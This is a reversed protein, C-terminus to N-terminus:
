AHRDAPAAAFLGAFPDALQQMAAAIASLPLIQQVSGQEIAVRNMGYIVSSAEDQALTTGGCARIRAMGRVGDSGMGTLILGIAQRGFVEAVSELLVDCSPHYTDSAGQPRLCLKRDAGVALNSESPSITITGAVLAEGERGLRVPLRCLGALWDVMGTAFGDAIHQAILIPCPFDAPLQPLIAALAPPGGTSCAIAFVRPFSSGGATWLSNATSAAPPAIEAAPAAPTRPRMRTIVPISALMRIRARLTEGCAPTFAPKAIADLAGCRLAESHSYRANEDSVVLIPVAKSCMIEEIAQLGNMVPMDLDMCILQPQLAAALEIAQRGNAADGVIEIDPQEALLARLTGRVLASDDVLLVRIPQASM